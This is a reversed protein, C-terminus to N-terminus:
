FDFTEHHFDFRCGRETYQNCLDWLEAIMASPGCAFTIGPAGKQDTYVRDYVAAFNPRGRTMFKEKLAVGKPAQSVYVWVNLDPYGRKGAKAFCEDLEKRFWEFVEEQKIVWILYIARTVHPRVQTPDELDGLNYMDRLAGIIPAVGIGGGALLHFPYRRYNFDHHGYPGDIRM